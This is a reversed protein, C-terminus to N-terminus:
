SVTKHNVYLRSLDARSFRSQKCQLGEAAQLACQESATIQNIITMWDSHYHSMHDHKRVHDKRKM